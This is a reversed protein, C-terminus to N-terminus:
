MLEKERGKYKCPKVRQRYEDEERGGKQQSLLRILERQLAAARKQGTNPQVVICSGVSAFHLEILSFTRDEVGHNEEEEINEGVVPHSNGM